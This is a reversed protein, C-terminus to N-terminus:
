SGIKLVTPAREYSSAIGRDMRRRFEDEWMGGHGTAADVSAGLEVTAM